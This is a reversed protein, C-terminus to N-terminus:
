NAEPAIACMTLHRAKSEVLPPNEGLRSLKKIERNKRGAMIAYFRKIADGAAKNMLSIYRERKSECERIAAYKIFEIFSYV